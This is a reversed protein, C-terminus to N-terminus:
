RTVAQWAKQLQGLINRLTKDSALVAPTGKPGASSFRSALRSASSVGSSPNM